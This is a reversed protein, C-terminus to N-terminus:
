SKIKKLIQNFENNEKECIINYIKLFNNYYDKFILLNTDENQKLVQPSYQKLVQIFNYYYILENVFFINIVKQQIFFNCCQQLITCLESNKTNLKYNPIYITNLHSIQKMMDSFTNLINEIPFINNISIFDDETDKIYQYNIGTFILHVIKKKRPLSIINYKGTDNVNLTSSSLSNNNTFNIFFEINPKLKFNKYSIIKDPNNASTDCTHFYTINQMETTNISLLQKHWFNQFTHMNLLSSLLLLDATSFLFLFIFKYNIIFALPISIYSITIGLWFFKSFFTNDFTTKFNMINYDNWHTVLTSIDHIYNLKFFSKCNCQIYYIIENYSTIEAVLKIKSKCLPCCPVPKYKTNSNQCLQEYTYVFQKKM